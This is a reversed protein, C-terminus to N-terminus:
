KYITVHKSLCQESTTNGCYCIHFKMPLQLQRLLHFQHVSNELCFLELSTSSILLDFPKLSLSILSNFVSQDNLLSYILLSFFLNFLELSFLDPPLFSFSSNWLSDSIYLSVCVYYSNTGSSNLHLHLKTVVQWLL